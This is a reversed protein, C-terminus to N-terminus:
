NVSERQAKKIWNVHTHKHPPVSPRCTADCRFGINIYTQSDNRVTSVSSSPRTHARHTWVEVYLVRVTLIHRRDNLSISHTHTQLQTQITKCSGSQSLRRGPYLRKKEHTHTHMPFMHDHYPEGVVPSELLICSRAVARPYSDGRLLHSPWWNAGVGIAPRTTAASAFNSM